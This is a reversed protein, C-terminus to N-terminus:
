FFYKVGAELGANLDHSKSRNWAYGKYDKDETNSITGDVHLGADFYIKEALRVRVGAGAMAGFTLKEYQDRTNGNLSPNSAGSISSKLLIGLQPGAKATFMVARAPNTNYTFLVPVKLYNFKQTYSVTNDIYRQKISAYTVETGIGMHKNFNYGGTVGFSTGCKSRYDAGPKEADAENFMVSLQAAGQAGAYFGKQAKVGSVAALIAVATTLSFLITKKM